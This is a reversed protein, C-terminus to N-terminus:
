SGQRHHSANHLFNWSFGDMKMSVAITTGGHLYSHNFSHIFYKIQTVRM